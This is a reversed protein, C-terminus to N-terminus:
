VIAKLINGCSRCKYVKGKAAWSQRQQTFEHIQCGCSYKYVKTPTRTAVKYSHCREPEVGFDCMVAAWGSGHCKDGYIVYAVIHAFEHPVTAALFEAENEAYLKSSFEVMSQELWARGATSTLRANMKISVIFERGYMQRCFENLEAIKATIKEM